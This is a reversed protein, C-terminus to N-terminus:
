FKLQVDTFGLVQAGTMKCNSGSAAPACHGMWGDARSRCSSDFRQRRHTQKLRWASWGTAPNACLRVFYVEMRSFM